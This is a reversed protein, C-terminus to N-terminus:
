NDYSKAEDTKFFVEKFYRSVVLGEMFNINTPIKMNSIEKVALLPINVGAKVSLVGTGAFRPNIEFIKPEGNIKKVQFNFPGCLKLNAAIKKGLEILEKDRVTIGQFSIGGLVKIRRRPVICIVKGHKDTLGDVTYEEGELWMQIVPKQINDIVIRAEEVTNVKYTQRSGWGLRPKVLAPLGTFKLAKDIGDDPLASTAMPLYKSLHYYTLWKDRCIRITKLSSIIIKTGVEAIKTKSIALIELEADTCPFIIDVNERRCINIIESIYKPHDAQPVIYTKNLPCGKSKLYFCAAYPDADIGILRLEKSGMRLAEIAGTGIAGGCGTVLVTIM